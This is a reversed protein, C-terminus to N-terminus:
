QPSELEDAESLLRQAKENQRQAQQVEAEFRLADVLADRVFGQGDVWSRALETQRSATKEAAQLDGLHIQARAAGRIAELWFLSPIVFSSYFGDATAFIQKARQYDKVSLFQNGLLVYLAGVVEVNPPTVARACQAMAQELAEAIDMRRAKSLDRRGLEDRLRQAAGVDIAGNDSCLKTTPDSAVHSRDHQATGEACSAPSDVVSGLTRECNPPAATESAGSGAALLTTLACWSLSLRKSAAPIQQM